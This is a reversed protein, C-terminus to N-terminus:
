RGAPHPYLPPTSRTLATHYPALRSLCSSSSVILRPLPLPLTLRRRTM